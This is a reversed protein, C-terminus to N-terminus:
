SCLGLRPAQMVTRYEVVAVTLDVRPEGTAHSSISYARESILPFVDLLYRLPVRSHPFDDLVELITRRPRVCYALLDDQGQTSALEALRDREAPHDSFVRLLEFFSRRPVATIDLCHKALHWLTTHRPVWQPLGSSGAIAVPQDAWHMAHLFATAASSPNSPRLMCTDGPAWSLRAQPAFQLHRVDQFHDTATLRENLVLQAAVSGDGVDVHVDKHRDGDGDGDKGKAKGKGKDMARGEAWREARGEARGEGGVAPEVRFVPEPVTDEPMIERPLPYIAEVGAWLRDLWPDLAGDLGLYHADDGDGRGVIEGAGLAKLRRFLRKAAFNFGDYHSDGLGFVAFRLASLADHPLSKRLLFRWFKRMNSPESGQGTTSCVFITLPPTAQFLITRDFSDMSHVRTTFYRRHAQRAIRRATDEACGTIDITKTLTKLKEQTDETKAALRTALGQTGVLAQQTDRICMDLSMATQRSVRSLLERIETGGSVEQALSGLENIIAQTHERIDTQAEEVATSKSSNM